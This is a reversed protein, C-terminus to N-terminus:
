CSRYKGNDALTYIIGNYKYKKPKGCGHIMVGVQYKDDYIQSVNIVDGDKVNKELFKVIGCRFSNKTFIKNVLGSSVFFIIYL